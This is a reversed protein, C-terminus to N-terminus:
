KINVRNSTHWSITAKTQGKVSKIPTDYIEVHLDVSAQGSPPQYLTVTKKTNINHGFLTAAQEFQKCIERTDKLTHVVIAGAGAFLLEPICLERTKTSAKLKAM